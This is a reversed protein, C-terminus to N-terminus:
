FYIRTDHLDEGPERSFHPFEGEEKKDRKYKGKINMYPMFLDEQMWELAYLIIQDSNEKFEARIPISAYFLVEWAAKIATAFMHFEYNNRDMYPKNAFNAYLEVGIKDIFDRELALLVEKERPIEKLGRQRLFSELDEKSPKIPELMM